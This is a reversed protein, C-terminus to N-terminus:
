LLLFAMMRKLRMTREKNNNNIHSILVNLTLRHMETTYWTLISILLVLSFDFRWFFFLRGFITLSATDIIKRSRKYVVCKTPILLTNFLTFEYLWHKCLTRVCWTNRTKQKTKETWKKNNLSTVVSSTLHYIFMPGFPMNQSIPRTASPKVLTLCISLAFSFFHNWEIFLESKSMPQNKETANAWYSDFSSDYICLYVLGIAM